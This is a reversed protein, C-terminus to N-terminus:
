RASARLSCESSTDKYCFHLFTTNSIGMGGKMDSFDLLFYNKSTM